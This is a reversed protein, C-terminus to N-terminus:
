YRCQQLKKGIIAAGRGAPPGAIHAGWWYLSSGYAWISLRVIDDVFRRLVLDRRGSFDAPEDSVSETEALL